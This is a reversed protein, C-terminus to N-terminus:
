FRYLHPLLMKSAKVIQNSTYYYGSKSKDDLHCIFNDIELHMARKLFMSWNLKPVSIPSVNPQLKQKRTKVLKSSFIMSDIQLMKETPNVNLKQCSELISVKMCFLSKAM